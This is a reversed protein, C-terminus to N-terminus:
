PPGVDVCAAVTGALLNDLGSVAIDTLSISFRSSSSSATWWRAVEQSSVALCGRSPRWFEKTCDLGVNRTWEPPASYTRLCLWPPRASSGDKERVERCILYTDTADGAEKSQIEHRTKQGSRSMRLVLGSVTETRAVTGQAM